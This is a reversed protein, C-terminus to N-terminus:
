HLVRRRDIEVAVGFLRIDPQGRREGIGSREESPAGVDSLRYVHM